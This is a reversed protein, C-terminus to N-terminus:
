QIGRYIIYTKIENYIKQDLIFISVFYVIIGIIVPLIFYLNQTPFIKCYIGIFISMIITSKIISVISNDIKIKITKSLLNGFMLSCLIMNIAIAIAAGIIGFIPILIINLIINVIVSLLMFKFLDKQKDLASLYSSFFTFFVIIIQSILLVVFTLYGSAFEAGYLTYLIDKGLLIGGAVFPIIILLSYTMGKSLSEEILNTEGTISWRSVRIYLTSCLSSTIIYLFGSLQLGIRYIGVDAPQLYHGILITDISQFTIISGSILFEWFSFTSLNKIHKFKFRVLKLNLFKLQLLAGLLLGLTFGGIMGFLSFGLYVAIVQIIMRCINEFSMTTAIIGIKGLGAVSNLTIGSLISVILIIILWLYTGNQNLVFFYDKFILLLLVIITVSIIRVVVFASFYENAEVKESIRKIAAKGFGFDIVTSILGFYTIFLFYIGLDSAGLVKAFYIISFFGFFATFFQSGIMLLSQRQIAGMELIRYYIKNIM